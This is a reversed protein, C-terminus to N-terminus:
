AVKNLRRAVQAAFVMIPMPMPGTSRGLVLTDSGGVRMGNWFVPAAHSTPATPAVLAALAVLAAGAASASSAKPPWFATLAAFAGGVWM